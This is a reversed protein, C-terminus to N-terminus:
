PNEQCADALSLFAYGALPATSATNVVDVGPLAWYRPALDDLSAGDRVVLEFSEPLQSATTSKILEPHDAFLKKFEGLAARHSIFTFRAVDPDHEIAARLAEVQHPTARVQMFIKADIRDRGSGFGMSQVTAKAGIATSLQELPDVATHSLGVAYVYTPPSACVRALLAKANKAPNNRLAGALTSVPLPAYNEVVDTTDLIAQLQAADAATAGAPLVVAADFRALRDIAVKKVSGAVRVHNAGPRTLAIGGAVLGIVLVVAVSASAVRRRAVRHRVAALDEAFPEVEGALEALEARLEDTHM